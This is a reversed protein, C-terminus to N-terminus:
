GFIADIEDDDGGERKKVKKKKKLPVGDGAVTSRKSAPVLKDSATRPPKSSSRPPEESPVPWTPRATLDTENSGAPDLPRYTTAKTTSPKRPAPASAQAPQAPPLSGENRIGGKGKSSGGPRRGFDPDTSTPPMQPVAKRSNVGTSPVSDVRLSQLTASSSKVSSGSSPVAAKANPRRVVSGIDDAPLLPVDDAQRSAASPGAPTAPAASNTPLFRRLPRPLRNVAGDVAGFLKNADVLAKLTHSARDLDDYLVSFLSHLRAALAVVVLAFALFARSDVLQELIGACNLLVQLNKEVILLARPAALFGNCVAERTLDGAEESGPRMGFIALWRVLEDLARSTNRDVEVIRKWWRQGKHQNKHKYMFRRLLAAEDALQGASRRVPRLASVLGPFSPLPGAATVDSLEVGTAGAQRRVDVHM